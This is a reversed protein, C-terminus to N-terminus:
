YNISCNRINQKALAVVILQALEKSCGLEVLDDLAENNKRKQNAKNAAQKAALADAAAKESAIRAETDAIAQLRQQEARAAADIADQKAKSAAADAEQQQRIRANEAELKERNAKEIEAHAERDKRFQEDVLRQREHEAVKEAAIRANDAAERAIREERDKQERALSEARLKELEAQAAERELRDTLAIELSRLVSEKVHHARLEFEEYSSDVIKNKVDEITASLESSDLDTNELRINFWRISLEHGAIRQKEENEIEKLPTEHVEIMSQVVATLYKADADVLRGKTLFEEKEAVRKKEIAAKTTRLKAVHSRAEQNGKKDRYDFVAKSNGVQLENLQSRFEDFAAVPQAAPLFEQKSEM